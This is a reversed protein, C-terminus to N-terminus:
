TTIPLEVPIASFAGMRSLLQAAGRESEVHTLFLRRIAAREVQGAVYSHYLLRGDGSTSSDSNGVAPCLLNAGFGALTAEMKKAHPFVKFGQCAHYLFRAAESAAHVVKFERVFFTNTTAVYVCGANEIQSADEASLGPLADDELAVVEPLLECLFKPQTGNRPSDLRFGISRALSFILNHIAPTFDPADDAATNWRDFCIRYSEYKELPTSNFVCITDDAVTVAAAASHDSVAQWYLADVNQLVSLAREEQLALKLQRPM